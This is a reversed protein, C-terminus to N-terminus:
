DASAKKTLRYFIRKRLPGFGMGGTNRYAGAKAALAVKNRRGHFAIGALEENRGTDCLDAADLIKAGREYARHIM